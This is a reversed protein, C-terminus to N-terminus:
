GRGAGDDDRMVVVVQQARADPKANRPLAKEAIWFATIEEALAPTVQKWVNQYQYAMHRDRIHLVSETVM